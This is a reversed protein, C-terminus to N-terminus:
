SGNELFEFTAVRIRKRKAVVPWLDVMEFAKDNTTPEAKTANIRITDTELAVIGFTTRRFEPHTTFEGGSGDTRYM